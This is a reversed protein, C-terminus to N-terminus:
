LDKSFERAARRLHDVLGRMQGKLSELAEGAAEGARDLEPKAKQYAGDLQEIKDRAEMEALKAHLKLRELHASWAEAQHRAAERYDAPDAALEAALDARATGVDGELREAAREAADRLEQWAEGASERVRDAFATVHERDTKLDAAIQRFREAIEPGSLDIEVHFDEISQNLRSVRDELYDGYEHPTQPLDAM